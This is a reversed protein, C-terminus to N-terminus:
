KHMHKSSLVNENKALLVKEFVAPRPVTVPVGLMESLVTQAKSVTEKDFKTASEFRDGDGESGGTEVNDVAIRIAELAHSSHERVIRTCGRESVVGISLLHVFTSIAQAKLEERYKEAARKPTVNGDDDEFEGVLKSCQKESQVLAEVVVRICDVYSLHDL